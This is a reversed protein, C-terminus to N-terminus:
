EVNEYFNQATRDRRNTNAIYPHWVKEQQVFGMEITKKESLIPYGIINSSHDRMRYQCIDQEDGKYCHKLNILSFVNFEVLESNGM